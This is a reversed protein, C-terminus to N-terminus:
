HQGAGKREERLLLYFVQSRATGKVTGAARLRSKPELRNAVAGGGCVYVCM